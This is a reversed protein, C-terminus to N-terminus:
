KNDLDQKIKKKEKRRVHGYVIWHILSLCLLMILHQLITKIVILVRTTLGLVQGIFLTVVGVLGEFSAEVSSPDINEMASPLVLYTRVLMSLLILIVLLKHVRKIFRLKENEKLRLTLETHNNGLM